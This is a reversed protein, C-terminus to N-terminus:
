PMTWDFLGAGGSATVSSCPRRYTLKALTDFSQTSGVTARAGPPAIADNQIKPVSIGCWSALPWWDRHMKELTMYTDIVFPAESIRTSGTLAPFKSQHPVTVTKGTTAPSVPDSGGKGRSRM